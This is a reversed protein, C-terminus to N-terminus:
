SGNTVKKKLHEGTRGAAKKEMLVKYEEQTPIIGDPIKTTMANPRHQWLPCDYSKCSGVLSVSGGMCTICFLRIAHAKSNKYDCNYGSKPNKLRIEKELRNM